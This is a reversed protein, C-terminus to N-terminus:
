DGWFDTVNIPPLKRKLHFGERFIKPKGEELKFLLFKTGEDAYSESRFAQHFSAVAKDNLISIKLDRIDIAIIASQRAVALKQNLFDDLPAGKSTKFDSSYFTPLSGLEKKIALEEWAKRWTFVIEQVQTRTMKAPPTAANFEESVIFLGEGRKEWTLKKTGSDSFNDSLYDQRFTAVARNGEVNVRLDSVEVIIIASVSAEKARKKLYEEKSKGNFNFDEAYFVGYESVKKTEATKEWASKWAQLRAKVDEETIVIPSPPSPNEEERGAPAPPLKQAQESENLPAKFAWVVLIVAIGLVGIAVATYLLPRRRSKHISRWSEMFEISREVPRFREAVEDAGPLQEKEDWYEERIVRRLDTGCGECRWDFRTVEKGCIPCYM